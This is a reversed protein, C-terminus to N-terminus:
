LLLVNVKVLLRGHFSRGCGAQQARRQQRQRQAGRRERRQRRHWFIHQRDAFGGIRLREIRRDGDIVVVPRHDIGSILPQHLIFGRAAFSRGLHFAIQRRAPLGGVILLDPGKLQIRRRFEGVARRNGGCRDLGRELAQQFDGLPWRFRKRFVQLDLRRVFLGHTKGEAGGERRKQIRQGVVAGRNDIWRHQFLVRGVVRAAPQRLM